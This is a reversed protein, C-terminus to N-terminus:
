EEKGSKYLILGVRLVAYLMAFVLAQLATGKFGEVSLGGTTLVTMLLWFVGASIILNLTLSRGM